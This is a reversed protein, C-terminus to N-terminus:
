TNIFILAEPILEPAKKNEYAACSGYNL